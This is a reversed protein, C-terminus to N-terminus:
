ILNFDKDFVGCVKGVEKDSLLVYREFVGFIFNEKNKLQEFNSSHCSAIVKVGSNTANKVCNWDSKTSLEDTIIINPALSRISYEFAYFKDAYCIKDINEGEIEDFEGREDIILLNGLNRQNINLTIDKLLTTKGFFPPSIILTNNITNNKIIKDIILNSCGKIVHPIRVNISNVNKITVVQGNDYVCEGALGIRIGNKYTLFGNKIKENHAYASFETVNRIITEIDQKECCIADNSLITFGNNNIYVAQGNIIVKIKFGVRLRLENLNTTDCNNLALYIKKPLFSLDM